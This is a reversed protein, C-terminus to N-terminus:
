KERRGVGGWIVMGYSMIVWMLAFLWIRKEWDWVKEEKNGWVQRM